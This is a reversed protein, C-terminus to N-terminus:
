QKALGAELASRLDPHAFTFGSRELVVPALRQGVLVGEQAFQGLAARLLMGPIPVPLTPRHLARGLAKTFERNTVAQPGVLNVPGEVDVTLLHTIARLEDELSIWSQYQQGSGLPAGAGAKFIPLQKRLAGGQATLVIGTRLHVTRATSGETAQEWAACVDALFGQGQAGSEDTLVSGTDGYFGIASGSLLVPVGAKTVANTVAKTGNVRSDRITQKYATSWRKDAVGAGALHIVADLDEVTAPALFTGDWQREDPLSAPRRLFTVTTHGQAQLHPVLATGILGSAGTIGIKMGTM